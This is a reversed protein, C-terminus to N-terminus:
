LRQAYQYSLGFYRQASNLVEAKREKSVSPDDWEFSEVKGRVYARYCKYFDLVKLLGEDGSEAMYTQIFPENLETKGHYDIDMALFGIDAAVDTYRFRENFEICDIIAVRDGWFIHELRLDGHCDRICHSAIREYFVEGNEGLFRNTRARISEYVKGPITVDVFKETQDFNEDTDQKLREPRAFSEIYDSPGEEAYFHVLKRALAEMMEATVRNQKVLHHMLSEDPIQVMKVAYDIVTGRGEYSIEGDSEAIPVVGLYIEPALRRNLLIEQECFYRRKELSTFDLFGFNVPKKIKYAHRGTLFVLSIHTEMSRVEKPRDPYLAPNLLRKKLISLDM